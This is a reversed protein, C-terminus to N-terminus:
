CVYAQHAIGELSCVHMGLLLPQFLIKAPKAVWHLGPINKFALLNAFVDVDIPAFLGTSMEWRRLKCLLVLVILTWYGPNNM